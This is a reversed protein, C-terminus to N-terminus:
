RSYNAQLSYGWFSASGGITWLVAIGTFLLLNVVTILPWLRAFCDTEVDICLQILVIGFPVFILWPFKLMLNTAMSLPKDDLAAWLERVVPHTALAFLAFAVLFAADFLIRQPRPVPSTSVVLLHTIPSM